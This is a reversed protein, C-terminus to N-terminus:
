ECMYPMISPDHYAFKGQDKCPHVTLPMGTIYRSYSKHVPKLHVTFGDSPRLIVDTYPYIYIHPHRNRTGPGFGNSSMWSDYCKYFAGPRSYRCYYTCNYTTISGLYYQFSEAITSYYAGQEMNTDSCIKRLAWWRNIFAKSFNSNKMIFAHSQLMRSSAFVEQSFLSWSFNQNHEQTHQKKSLKLQPFLFEEIRLDNRVFITDVDAYMVYDYNSSSYNMNLLHYVKAWGKTLGNSEVRWEEPNRYFFSFNYRQKKAYKNHNLDDIHLPNRGIWASYILISIDKLKM